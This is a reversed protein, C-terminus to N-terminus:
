KQKVFYKTPRDIGLHDCAEVLAAYGILVADATDGKEYSCSDKTYKKWTSPHVTVLHKCDVAGMAAGAAQHLTKWSESIWHNMRGTKSQFSAPINEIVLVDVPDFDQRLTRGIELLRQERTQNSDIELIGAETLHSSEYIAYGINSSQSSISPDICLVSGRTLLAACDAHQVQKQLITLKPKSAM